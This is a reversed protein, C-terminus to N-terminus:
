ENVARCARQEAEISATLVAWADLALAMPGSADVIADRHAFAVAKPAAKSALMIEVRAEEEESAFFREVKSSSTAAVAAAAAVVVAVVVAAVGDGNGEEEDEDDDDDDFPM